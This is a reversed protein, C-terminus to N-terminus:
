KRFFFVRIALYNFEYTDQFSSLSMEDAGANLLSTGTVQSMFVVLMEMVFSSFLLFHIGYKARMAVKDDEENSFHDEVEILNAIAAGGILAAPTGINVVWDFAASGGRLSLAKPLARKQQLQAPEEQGSGDLAAGRIPALRSRPLVPLGSACVVLASAMLARMPAM